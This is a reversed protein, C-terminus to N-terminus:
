FEKIVQACEGVPLSHQSTPHRWSFGIGTVGDLRREAPRAFFSGTGGWSVVVFYQFV